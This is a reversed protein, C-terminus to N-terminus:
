QESLQKQIRYTIYPVIAINHKHIFEEFEDHTMSKDVDLFRRLAARAYAYSRYALSDKGVTYLVIHTNDKVIIYLELEPHKVLNLKLDLYEKTLKVM